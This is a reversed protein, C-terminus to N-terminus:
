VGDILCVFFLYGEFRWIWGKLFSLTFYSL